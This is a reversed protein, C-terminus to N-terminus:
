GHRPRETLVLEGRGGALGREIIPRLRATRGSNSAPNMIVVPTQSSGM